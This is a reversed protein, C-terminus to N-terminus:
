RNHKTVRVGCLTKCSSDILRVFETADSFYNRFAVRVEDSSDARVLVIDKAPNDRELAFLSRMADVSDRYSRIELKEGESFMLIVNKNGSIENTATNLGRLLQM